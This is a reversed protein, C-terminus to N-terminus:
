KTRVLTGTLTGSVWTVVVQLQGLGPGVYGQDNAGPNTQTVVTSWPQSSDNRIQVQVTAVSGAASTCQFSVKYFGALDCPVSGTNGVPGCAFTGSTQIATFLPVFDARASNPLLILSLCFLVTALKKM